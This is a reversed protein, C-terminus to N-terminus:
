GNVTREYDADGGIPREDDDDSRFEPAVARAVLEIDGLGDLKARTDDRYVANSFTPKWQWERLAQDAEARVHAASELLREAAAVVEASFQVTM